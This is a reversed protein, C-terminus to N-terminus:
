SSPIAGILIGHSFMYAHGTPVDIIIGDAGPAAMLNSVTSNPSKINLSSSAGM